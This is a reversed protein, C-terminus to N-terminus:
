GIYKAAKDKREKKEDKASNSAGRHQNNPSLSPKMIVPMLATTDEVDSKVAKNLTRAHKKRIQYLATDFSRLTFALGEDNLAKVILERKVGKSLASEIADLHDALRATLSRNTGAELKKLRDELSM